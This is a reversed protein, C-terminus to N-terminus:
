IIHNLEDELLTPSCLNLARDILSIAVAEKHNRPHNSDFKLYNETHTPKRYISFKFSGELNRTILLDL